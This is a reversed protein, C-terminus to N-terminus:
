IWGYIDSIHHLKIITTDPIESGDLCDCYNVEPNVFRGLISCTDDNEYFKDDTKYIDEDILMEISDIFPRQGLNSCDKCTKIKSLVFEAAGLENLKQKSFNFLLGGEVIYEKLSDTCDKFRKLIEKKLTFINIKKSNYLKEFILISLNINPGKALYELDVNSIEKFVVDAFFDKANEFDTELRNNLEDFIIEKEVKNKKYFDILFKLVNETDPILRIYSIAGISNLEEKTLYDLYGEILLFHKVNDSGEAFRFGIEDKFVKKAQPDGVETLRKLLPFALNSHIIRSDYGNEIWAQLNSCHGWFEELPHINVRVNEELKEVGIQENEQWGLYDAVDDISDFTDYDSIAKIPINILLYKCQIFMEGMVYIETQDDELKLTIYENLVFEKIDNNQADM